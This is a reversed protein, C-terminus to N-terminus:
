SGSEEFGSLRGILLDNFDLGRPRGAIHVRPNLRKWRSARDIAAAERAEDSDLSVDLPLSVFLRVVPDDSRPGLGRHACFADKPQGRNGLQRNCGTVGWQPLSGSVTQKSSPLTVPHTESPKPTGGGFVHLSPYGVAPYGASSLSM